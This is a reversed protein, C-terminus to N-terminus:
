EIAYILTVTAHRDVRQAEISMPGTAVANQRARDEYLTLGAGPTQAFVDSGGTAYLPKGLTAGMGQALSVALAHARETAKRVAEAELSISNKMRWDIQGSQNAGKQVAADLVLAADKPEVSVIWSQTVSFKMGKRMKMEADDLRSVRQTQSQIASHPAGAAVLAATIANSLDSGSKYASPLDAGYATFGIHLDAVEPDAEAHDSATVTLTRNDKDVKVTQANVSLAFFFALAATVFRFSKM